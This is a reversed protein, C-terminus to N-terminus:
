GDRGALARQVAAPLRGGRGARRRVTGPGRGAVLSRAKLLLSGAKAGRDFRGHAGADDTDDVPHFLNSRRGPDERAGTQQSSFATRALYRDLLAPAIRQGLLTGATSGGIWYEKRRPRDAALLVAQAAVEPQFIPPVPQARNRLRSLVWDFQPTNLGPLQVMTIAVGSRDHMLECRVSETFGRIASKAACYASQLPVSRYALASGVQVIAGTGRPVMRDLAARTGHVAGLYCVEIVRRYEQPSVQQSEGFATSFANNVWVEIPGFEEEARNAATEVQGPDSVDAVVPLAWGGLERVDRAAAQLGEEGRALLVVRDGRAGFGRAVARGVGASAGTVVVVRGTM